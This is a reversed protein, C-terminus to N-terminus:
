QNEENLWQEMDEGTLNKGQWIEDVRQTLRAAFHRALINRIDLLEDKTLQLSFIKLMELQLNTLPRQVGM